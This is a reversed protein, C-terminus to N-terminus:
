GLDYTVGDLYLQVGASGAANAAVTGDPSITLRVMTGSSLRASVRKIRAPRFAEDLTFSSTGAGVAGTYDVQGRLRVASADEILRSGGPAATADATQTVNAAFSTLEVWAGPAAAKGALADVLGDVDALVHEHLLTAYRADAVAQSLGLLLASPAPPDVLVSRLAAPGSGPVTVAYRHRGDVTLEYYAATDELDGTPTLDLSWTGDAATVTAATRVVLDGDDEFPLPTRLAATVAAGAVAAGAPTALRGTVATV